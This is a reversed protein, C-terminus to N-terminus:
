LRVYLRSRLLQALWQGAQICLHALYENRMQHAMETQFMTQGIIRQPHLSTPITLNAQNSM